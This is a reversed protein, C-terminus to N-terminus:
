PKLKSKTVTYGTSNIATKIQVINTKTSDFQVTATGKNYSTQVSFVGKIKNVEHNIEDECASCGMGSITFEATTIVNKGIPTISIKEAKPFLARTYYPFALMLFAFLTVVVLFAKSQLFGPKRKVTCCDEKTVPKLKEYWALGLALVTLGTLYPKAPELWSLQSALSGGGALVVLLPTICCLSAAIPALIGIGVLGKSINKMNM